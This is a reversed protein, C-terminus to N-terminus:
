PPPRLSSLEGIGACVTKGVWLPRGNQLRPELVEVFEGAPDIVEPWPRGSEDCVFDQVADAVEM